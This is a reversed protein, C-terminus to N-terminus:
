PKITWRLFSVHDLEGEWFGVSLGLWHFWRTRGSPSTYLRPIM